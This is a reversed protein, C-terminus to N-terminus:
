LEKALLFVASDAFWNAGLAPVSFDKMHYAAREVLIKRHLCLKTFDKVSALHVNPTNYWEYPITRSVPMRGKFFYLFRFWWFGFNPISVIAQKGVRVIERLILESQKTVQLTQNLIVYDYSQDQFDPLGEEINAQIVSLDKEICAYINEMSIEIGLGRVEKRKKLLNMLDGTGCGIDLVKSKPEIWKLITRYDPRGVTLATLRTM